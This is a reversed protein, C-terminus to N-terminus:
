TTGAIELNMYAFVFLLARKEICQHRGKVMDMPNEVHDPEGGDAVGAGRRHNSARPAANHGKM